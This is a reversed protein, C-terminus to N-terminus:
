YANCTLQYFSQDISGGGGSRYLYCYAKDNEYVRAAYECDSLKVCQEFCPQWGGWEDSWFYVGITADRHRIEWKGDYNWPFECDSLRDRNYQSFMCGVQKDHTYGFQETCLKCSAQESQDNYRGSPCTICRSSDPTYAGTGCTTCIVQKILTTYKGGPCDYCRKDNSNYYKGVTCSKCDNKKNTAGLMFTDTLEYCEKCSTQGTQDQYKGYTCQTCGSVSGTQDAYKGIECLKCSTQGTSPQYQGQQCYKCGTSSSGDDDYEGVKCGTCMTAGSSVISVSATKAENGAACNKCDLQGTQDQYQNTECSTCSSQGVQDQYKGIECNKCTTQGEVDQYTGSQCNQCATSSSGDGDKKGTPCLTCSEAGTSALTNTYSGSGCTKCNGSQGIANMYKGIACIQCQTSSTSDNDTTGVPCETCSKAGTSALTDTFSGSGCTKCIGSQSSSDMFYGAACLQCQTSSERDFDTKGAPCVNCQSAGSAVVNNNHLTEYGSDCYKCSTQGEQDQYTGASCAGCVNNNASDHFNGIQCTAICQMKDVSVMGNCVVPQQVNSVSISVGSLVNQIPTQLNSQTMKNRDASLPVKYKLIVNLVLLRRRTTAETVKTITVDHQSVSIGSAIASQLESRKSQVTNVNTNSLTINQEHGGLCSSQGANPQYQGAPCATCKKLNDAFQGALCTKCSALNDADTYQGDQCLECKRINNDMYSKYGPVCACESKDGNPKSEHKCTTCFSSGATAAQGDACDQCGSPSTEGRYKGPGCQNCRQQVLSSTSNTSAKEYGVPCRICFDDYQGSYTQDTCEICTNDSLSTIRYDNKCVCVSEDPSNTVYANEPIITLETGLFVKEFSSGKKQVANTRGCDICNDNEDVKKDESCTCEAYGIIGLEFTKEADYFTNDVKLKCVGNDVNYIDQTYSFKGAPCEKCVIGYTAVDCANTGGDYKGVEDQYYGKPCARLNTSTLGINRSTSGSLYMGPPAIKCKNVKGGDSYQGSWCEACVAGAIFYGPLCGASCYEQGNTSALGRACDICPDRFGAKLIAGKQSNYKGGPCTKCSTQGPEDGYKGVPCPLCFNSTTTSLDKQLCMIQDTGVYAGCAVSTVDTNFYADGKESGKSHHICGYPKTGDATEGKWVYNASQTYLKCEASTMFMDDTSQKTSGSNVSKIVEGNNYKGIPCDYCIEDSVMGEFGDYGIKYTWGINETESCQDLSGGKIDPLYQDDYLCTCTGDDQVNFYEYEVCERYCHDIKHEKTCEDSPFSPDLAHDNIFTTAKAEDPMRRVYYDLHDSWHFNGEGGGGFIKMGQNGYRYTNIHRDSLSCEQYSQASRQRSRTKCRCQVGPTCTVNTNEENFYYKNGKLICGYPELTNKYTRPQM